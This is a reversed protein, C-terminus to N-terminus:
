EASCYPPNKNTSLYFMAANRCVDDCYIGVRMHDRGLFPMLISFFNVAQCQDDEEMTAEFVRFAFAHNCNAMDTMTESSANTPIECKDVVISDIYIDQCGCPVIQGFYFSTHLCQVIEALDAKTRNSVIEPFTFCPQACDLGFIRKIKVRADRTTMARAIQGMLQCGLSHGALETDSIPVGVAALRELIDVVHEAM